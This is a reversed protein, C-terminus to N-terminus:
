KMSKNKSIMKDRNVSDKRITLDVTYPGGMKLSHRVSSIFYRGSFYDDRVDSIYKPDTATPVYIDITSGARLRSDGVVVINNIVVIEVVIRITIPIQILGRRTILVIM